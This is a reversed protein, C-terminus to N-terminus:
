RGGEVLIRMPHKKTSSRLLLLACSEWQCVSNMTELKSWELKGQGYVRFSCQPLCTRPISSHALAFRRPTNFSSFVCLPHKCTEPRSVLHATSSKQETRHCRMLGAQSQVSRQSPIRVCWLILEVLPLEAFVPVASGVHFFCLCAHRGHTHM